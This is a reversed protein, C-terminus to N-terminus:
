ECVKSASRRSSLMTRMTAVHGALQQKHQKEKRRVQDAATRATDLDARCVDVCQTLCGDSRYDYACAPM